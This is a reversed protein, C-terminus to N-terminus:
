GMLKQFAEVIKPYTTALNSGLAGEIINRISGFLEKIFYMRPTPSKLQSDITAIDAQLFDNNQLNPFDPIIKKIESILFRSTEIDNTNNDITLTNKIGQQVPANAVSGVFNNITIGQASKIENENFSMDEGLIGNKELNLAWDLVKNKVSDLIGHCQSKDIITAAMMGHNQKAFAVNLKPPLYKGTLCTTQALQEIESIKQWIPMHEIEGILVPDDIIINTWGYFPHLCKMTGVVFRYDPLEESSDLYGNLECSIWKKFENLNLKVAVSYATRLLDVVSINSDLAKKQLELVLKM